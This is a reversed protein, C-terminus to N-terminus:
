WASALGRGGCSPLRMPLVPFIGVLDDHVRENYTRYTGLLEDHLLRTM